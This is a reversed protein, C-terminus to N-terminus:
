FSSLIPRLLLMLSAYHQLTSLCARSPAEEPKTQQRM